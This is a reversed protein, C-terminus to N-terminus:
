RKRGWAGQLPEPPCPMTSAAFGPHPAAHSRDQAMTRGRAGGRRRRIDLGAPAPQDVLHELPGVEVPAQNMRGIVADADLREVGGRRHRRTQGSRCREGAAGRRGGGPIDALAVRFGSGAMRLAWIRSSRSRPTVEIRSSPTAGTGVEPLAQAADLEIQGRDSQRRPPSKAGDARRAVAGKTSLTPEVRVRHTGIETGVRQPGGDRAGREVRLRPEGGGDGQCAVDGGCPGRDRRQEGVPAGVMSAAGALCLLQGTDHGGADAVQPGQGVAAQGGTVGGTLDAEGERHVGIEEEADGLEARQPPQPAPDQLRRARVGRHGSQAQVGLGRRPHEGLAVRVHVHQAAGDGGEGGGGASRGADRHEREVVSDPRGRANARRM